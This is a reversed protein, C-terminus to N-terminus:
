STRRAEDGKDRREQILQFRVTKDRLTDDDQGAKRAKALGLSTPWNEDTHAGGDELPRERESAVVLRAREGLIRGEGETSELAACATGRYREGAWAVRRGGGM